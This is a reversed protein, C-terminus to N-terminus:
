GGIWQQALHRAQLEQINHSDVALIKDLIKTQFDSNHLSPQNAATTDEIENWEENRHKTDGGRMKKEWETKCPKNVTEVFQKGSKRKKLKM